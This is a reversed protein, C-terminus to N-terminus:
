KFFVPEKKANKKSAPETNNMKSKRIPKKPPTKKAKAKVPKFDEEESEEEFDIDSEESESAKRKKRSSTKAPAKSAPQLKKNLFIVKM